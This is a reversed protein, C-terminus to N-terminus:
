DNDEQSFMKDEEQEPGLNQEQKKKIKKKPTSLVAVPDFGKWLPVTALFSSMLSGGKLLYSAAGVTFTAAISGATYFHVRYTEEENEYALGMDQSMKKLEVEMMQDMTFLKAAEYTDPSITLAASLALNENLSGSVVYDNKLLLHRYSKSVFWPNAIGGSRYREAVETVEAEFDYGQAEADAPTSKDADIVVPEVLEAPIAVEETGREEAAIEETTLEDWNDVLVEGEEEIITPQWEREEEILLDDELSDDEAIVEDDVTEDMEVIDAPETEGSTFSTTGSSDSVEAAAVTLTVIAMNSDEEGDNVCYSFSDEGSFGSDPTYTFTGDASLSLVGHQVDQVLVVVLSDMDVDGINAVLNGTIPTDAQGSASNGTATPADNVPDVTLSASGAVAIAGDSVDFSFGVAGNWDVFPSFTWSGDLNDVLIGNGNSIQLNEIYLTDGDADDAGALLAAETILFTTDEDVAGLDVPASTPVDNTSIVTIDVTATNSAAGSDDSITYTFSDATTESGDHIYSVTGDGSIVVIGNAPGSIITLTSLDLGNDVDTDNVILDFTAAQGENVTFGDDAADPADNVPDVTIYATYTNTGGNGDSVSYTFSDTGNFNTLPTYTFSGDGQVTAM